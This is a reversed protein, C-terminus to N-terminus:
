SYRGLIWNNWDFGCHCQPKHGIIKLRGGTIREYDEERPTGCEPCCPYSVSIVAGAPLESLKLVIDDKHEDSDKDGDCYSRFMTIVQDCTEGCYCDAVVESRMIEHMRPRNGM